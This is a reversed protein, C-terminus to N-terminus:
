NSFEQGDYELYSLLLFKQSEVLELQQSIHM